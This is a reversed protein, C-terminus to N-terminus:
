TSRRELLIEDRANFGYEVGILDDALDQDDPDDRESGNACSRGCRPAAIPSRVGEGLKVAGLRSAGFQVGVVPLQMQRLRDVVGAGIGGEDVCIFLPRHMRHVRRRSGVLQM